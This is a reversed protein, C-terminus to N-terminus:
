AQDNSDDGKSTKKESSDETTWGGGLAKYLQILSSIIDAECSKLSDSTSLQTQQTSLVTTYDVLGSSYQQRGLDAASIAAQEATQLHLYRERNLSLSVLANEAEELATLVTSEFTALAQEQVATQVKIQQRIRGGAFITQALSAAISSVASSGGTLASLTAGQVSLSGSLSLSPFQSAVAAGIRATQAALNREAVRVDPRQRLIDAPIGVFISEPVAPMPGSEELLENLSGPPSGSLVALRNKAQALSSELSPIQARTQAEASRAQEYDMQSVLGAQYRWEAIQRTEEQLALNEKAVAIRAQLLRLQIYELALEAVLSVQADHLSAVTSEYEAKAAEVERRTGGFIDMEWSADFGASYLSSAAEGSRKSNSAGASASVTPLLGASTIKRQARVERVKARALEMSPSNKVAEEILQTLLSDNLQNWWTALDGSQAGRPLPSQWNAPVNLQAATHPKYDPGAACSIFGLFVLFLWYNRKKVQRM